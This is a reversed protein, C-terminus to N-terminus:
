AQTKNGKFSKNPVSQHQSPIGAWFEEFDEKFIAEQEQSQLIKIIEKGAKTPRNTRSLYEQKRLADLELRSIKLEAVPLSHSKLYLYVLANVSIGYSICKRLVDENLNINWM